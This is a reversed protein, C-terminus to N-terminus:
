AAKQEVVFAILDKLSNETNVKVIANEKLMLLKTSMLSNMVTLRILKELYEKSLHDLNRLGEETNNLNSLINKGENLLYKAQDMEAQLTQNRHVDEDYQEYPIYRPYYM